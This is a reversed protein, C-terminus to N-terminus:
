QHKKFNGTERKFYSEECKTSYDLWQSVHTGYWPAVAEKSLPVTRKLAAESPTKLFCSGKRGVQGVVWGYGETDKFFNHM